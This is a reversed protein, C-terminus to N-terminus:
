NVVLIDRTCHSLREGRDETVLVTDEIRVGFRGPLYIGPEVSFTMGVQLPERNDSTLYPPEHDDLGIGHGVRHTFYEGYGAETIYERAAVDVDGIPVGPKIVDIGAQQAGLVVNYVKEFEEPMSGVVVTRSTDSYYGKYRGGFDFLVVDGEQVMRDGPVHHPSSSNPGSYPNAFAVSDQGHKKMLDGLRDYLERETLGVMPSTVFEAFAADNYRNLEELLEVEYPGKTIRLPVTIKSGKLFEAEPLRDQLELLFSAWQQDSIAVRIPQHADEGLEGLLAAYPDDTEGWTSLSFFTAFKSMRGAEFAPVVMFPESETPLVFLTLRETIHGEHGIFYLLDSSPAIFLYDIGERLMRERAQQCRKQHVEM